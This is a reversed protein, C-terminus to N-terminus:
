RLAIVLVAAGAAVILMALLRWTRRERDSVPRPPSGLRRLRAPFAPDRQVAILLSLGIGAIILGYALSYAMEPWRLAGSLSLLRLGGLLMLAIFLGLLWRRDSATM